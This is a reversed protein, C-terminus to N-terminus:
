SPIALTRAAILDLAPLYAGLGTPAFAVDAGVVISWGDRGGRQGPTALTAHILEPPENGGRARLLRAAQDFARDRTPAVISVLPAQAMDIECGDLTLTRLRPIAMRAIARRLLFTLRYSQDLTRM